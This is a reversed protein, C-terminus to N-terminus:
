LKFSFFYKCEYLFVGDKASFSGHEKHLKNEYKFTNEYGNDWIIKVVFIFFYPLVPM